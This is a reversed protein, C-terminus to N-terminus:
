RLRALAAVIASATVVGVLPGGTECVPAADIDFEAMVRVVQALPTAPTVTAWRAYPLGAISTERLRRPSRNWIRSLHPLALLGEVHGEDDVVVLHRAGTAVFRELAEWASSDYLISECGGSLADAATLDAFARRSADRPAAPTPINQTATM